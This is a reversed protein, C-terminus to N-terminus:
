RVLAASGPPDITFLSALVKGAEGYLEAQTVGRPFECYVSLGSQPLQFQWDRYREESVSGAISRAGLKGKPALRLAQDRENRVFCQSALSDDGAKLKIMEGEGILLPSKPQIFVQWEPTARSASAAPAPPPIVLMAPQAKSDVSVSLGVLGLGSILSFAIASYKVTGYVM